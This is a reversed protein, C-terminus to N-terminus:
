WVPGDPGMPGDVSKAVVRMTQTDYITWWTDRDGRFRGVESKAEELSDFMDHFDHMGGRAYFQAGMFVLFRRM